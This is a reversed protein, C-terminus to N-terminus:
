PPKMSVARGADSAVPPATESPALPAAAIAELAAPFAAVEAFGPALAESTVILYQTGAGWACFPSLGVVCLCLEAGAAILRRTRHWAAVARKANINMAAM